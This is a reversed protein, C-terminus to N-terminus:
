AVEGSIQGDVIRVVQDARRSIEENHTVVVLATGEAERMEELLAIIERSTKSDLNGTPEDALVLSPSNALSRALATRQREGGSLSNPLHGGRSAIGTRRLLETARRTRERRSKVVGFMPVEVNQAATLTPLLHFAQFVIGIERARLRTWEGQGSPERGRFLVRGGTPHDLGCLLHILTSKGSGSPGVIAVYAGVEISLSIDHLAVV